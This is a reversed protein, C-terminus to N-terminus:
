PGEIISQLYPVAAANNILGKETLGARVMGEPWMTWIDSNTTTEWIESVFESMEVFEEPAYGALGASNIAGASVGTVVEYFFDEVNPNDHALGWLVGAEWAGNSGGGSLALAICRDEAAKAAAIISSFAVGVLYTNM